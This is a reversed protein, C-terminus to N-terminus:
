GTALSLKLGNADSPIQLSLGAWKGDFCQVTCGRGHLTQQTHLSREQPRHFPTPTSALQVPRRPTNRHARLALMENPSSSRVIFRHSVCKQADM